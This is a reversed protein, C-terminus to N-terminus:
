NFLYIILYLMLFNEEVVHATINQMLNVYVQSISKKTIKAAYNYHLERLKSNINPVISSIGLETPHNKSSFQHHDIKSVSCIVITVTIHKLAM